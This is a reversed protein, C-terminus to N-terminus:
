FEVSMWVYFSRADGPQFGNDLNWVYTYYDEDFLNKVEFGITTDKFKQTLQGLNYALKFNFITYEGVPENENTADNLVYYDGQHELWLSGSIGKPHNFDVGLKGTEKPILEIDKGKVAALAEGPDTYVAKVQSYSGWLAVWPHPRISFSVDWGDRTTKGVNIRDGSGDGKKRVENSAVMQWVDARFSLWDFPSAKIGVEWGDNTSEALDRSILNGSTDQGYRYPTSPLQFTRGWNAYFNYGQFPTIVAGVKPQWIFDLDLMDSDNGTVKSICDGDFSDVRLAAFMRLWDRIDSDVQVFTGWYQMDYDFYRYESGQRIRDVTTWRQETAQSYQYDMGWDIKLRQIAEYNKEFTLTSVAGYQKETILTESQNGTLSWRSFKDWEMEQAYTKVSWYLSETFDYDFHLSAQKNEQESGDSRAYAAASTPNNDADDRSLYGPADGTLSFFRVIAGIQGKHDDLSYFWKGSFAQKETESHDRYGDSSRAGAFYNQSFNEDEVGVAIQGDYTDYSGTLLRAKTYDGGRKTYVNVSGAINNIGYRPDYSGKLMEIQHIELPFVPDMDITNRSSYFAPIGDITLSVPASTNIDYGRLSFSGALAGQNWDGFYAGPVKKLLEMSSDVNELEIENSGIVDVSAPADASAVYNTKSTVTVNGIKMYVRDQEARTETGSKVVEKKPAIPQKETSAKKKLIITNSGAMQFTLGTGQLIQPLADAPSTNRTGPSNKDEILENLYVIKIGTTKAYADLVDQLTGPKITIPAQDAMVPIASLLLLIIAAFSSAWASTKNM